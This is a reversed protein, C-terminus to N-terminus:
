QPGGNPRYRAALFPLIKDDQAAVIATGPVQLLRSIQLTMTKAHRDPGECKVLGHKRLEALGREASRLPLGGRRAMETTALVDSEKNFGWTARAIVVYVVCANCSLVPM